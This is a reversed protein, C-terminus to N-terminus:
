ELDMMLLCCAIARQPNSHSFETDSDNRSLLFATWGDCDDANILCVKHKIALPMIVDWDECYGENCFIISRMEDYYAVKDGINFEAFGTPAKTFAGSKISLAKNIEFDSM